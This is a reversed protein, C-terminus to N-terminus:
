LRVRRYDSLFALMVCAVAMFAIAALLAPDYDHTVDYARAMVLPGLAAGSLYAALLAAYLRGFYRIGFYRGALYGLADNEAGLSVGILLACCYVLPLQDTHALLWIAVAALCYFVITLYPVFVRDMLWGVVVRGPFSGVGLVSLVGAAQTLGIGRGSLLPALQSQLGNLAFSSMAFSAGLLWFERRRAAEGLSLGPEDASRQLPTASREGADLITGGGPENRLLLLAAPLPVALVLLGLGLYAGRWGYAQMLVGTLTPVLAYGFGFGAMCIGIAAGRRRDFWSSLVKLFTVSQAGLGTVALLAYAAYLHTLSADLASLWMLVAAYAAMSAIALRRPGVRDILQGAFPLLVVLVAVFLSLAGTIEVRPWHFQRELETIFLGFPMSVLTAPSVATALVCSLMVGAARWPRM